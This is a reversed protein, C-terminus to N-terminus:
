DAKKSSKQKKPKPEAESVENWKKWAFNVVLQGIVIVVLGPVVIFFKDFYTEGNESGFQDIMIKYLIVVFYPLKGHNVYALLPLAIRRTKSVPGPLIFKRAVYMADSSTVPLLAHISNVEFQNNEDSNHHVVALGKTPKVKVPDGTTSPFVLEGGERPTSLFITISAAPVISGDITDYHPKWYSGKEVRDVIFDSYYAAPFGTVQEIREDIGKREPNKLLGDWIMVREINVFKKYDQTLQLADNGTIPAVIDKAQDILADCEKKTLLNHIIYITPEAAEVDEFFPRDGGAYLRIREPMGNNVIDEQKMEPTVTVSTLLNASNLSIMVVPIDIKESEEENPLRYIDDPREEDVNVIILAAAGSKQAILAMEVGTLDGTNTMVVANGHVEDANDLRRIVKESFRHIEEGSDEKEWRGNIPTALVPMTEVELLAAQSTQPGFHAVSADLASIIASNGWEIVAAEDESRRPYIRYNLDQINATRKISASEVALAVLLGIILGLVVIVSGM